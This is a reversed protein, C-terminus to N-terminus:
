DKKEEMTDEEEEEYERGRRMRKRFPQFTELPCTDASSMKLDPPSM